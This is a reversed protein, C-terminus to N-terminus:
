GSQRLDITRGPRARGLIEADGTAVPADLRVGTALCLADAYSLGGTAKLEAAIEVLRWDPDITEVVQRVGDVRNSAVAQGHTRTLSYFVEGLNISCIVPGDELVLTRVRQAPPEGLLMAMVAWADLVV